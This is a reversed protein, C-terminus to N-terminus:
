ERLPRLIWPIPNDRGTVGIGRM